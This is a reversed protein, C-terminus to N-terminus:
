ARDPPGRRLNRRLTGGPRSARAIEARAVSRMDLVTTGDGDESADVTYGAPVNNVIVKTGERNKSAPIIREGQHVLALGTRPVSDTGAAFEGVLQPTITTSGLQGNPIGGGFLALISSIANGGDGGLLSKMLPKIVLLRFFEQLLSDVLRKAAEKPNKSTLVDELGYIAGEVIRRTGEGARSVEDLYDKVAQTAGTLPDKELATQKKNLLDRAAATERLAAAQQRYLRAIEENGSKEEKQIALLELATAQALLKERDLAALEERTFGFTKALEQAGAAEEKYGDLVKAQMLYQDEAAKAADQEAQSLEKLHELYAKVQEDLDKTAKAAKPTTRPPPPPPPKKAEEAKAAPLIPENTNALDKLKQSTATAQNQLDFLRDRAKSIRTELFTDSGGKRNLEEQFRAITDVTREVQRQIDTLEGTLRAQPNTGLIGDLLSGNGTRRAINLQRIFENVAPLVDGVVSRALEAFETRLGFLTKNFEEAAKAQATTATANLQGAEALDKLFPAAIKVNKGFIEAVLRARDGNEEFKGFAKAVDLLAAAPDQKKLKDVDLGISQLIKSLRDTGDTDKLEQNFKILISQLDEFSGGNREIVSQLASLNEVSSGTADSLDNLADLANVANKAIAIGAGGVAVLALGIARGVEEAERKFEKLAKQARKTDNEFTGTKLLLDVIISGAAM